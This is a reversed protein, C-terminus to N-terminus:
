EKELGSKVDQVNGNTSHGCKSCWWYKKVSHQYLSVQGCAPCQAIPSEETLMNLSKARLKRNWM